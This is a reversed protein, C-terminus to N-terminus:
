SSVEKLIGEVVERHDGQIEVDGDRITGGAGCKKKLLTLLADADGTVNRIVTAPKGNARKELFIPLGGKRTRSVRFAPPKPAPSQAIAAPIPSPSPAEPVAMGQLAAFPNSTLREAEPTTDIRDKKPKSM